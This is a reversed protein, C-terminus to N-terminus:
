EVVLQLASYVIFGAGVVACLMLVMIAASFAVVGILDNLRERFTQPKSPLPSREFYNIM